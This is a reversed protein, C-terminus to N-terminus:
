LAVSILWIVRQGFQAVANLTTASWNRMACPHTHQPWHLCTNSAEAYKCGATTAAACGDVAATIGCGAAAMAGFGAVAIAGCGTAATAGCGVAAMADCGAAAGGKGLGAFVACGDSAGRVAGTLALDSAGEAGFCAAAGNGGGIL